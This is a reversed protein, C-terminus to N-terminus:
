EYRIAEVPDLRSAQYAPYITAILCIIIASLSIVTIDTWQMKVALKDIYYIDSPLKVFQYKELLACLFVGGFIGLLTGVVGIVLGEIMFIKQISKGTAGMSKLVAIDKTKEMVVMILTSVINFAAVLVILTLIVFMTFKELKLASFLNRNMRMWDKTWYPYGLKDKIQLAIQDAKFYDDVRVEIGTVEDSMNLFDQAEKISIYALSSDYDYMGSSFIGIVEFRRSRPASGLPTDVGGPSVVKIFDQAKVSLNKALESGLIVGPTDSKKLLDSLKGQRMNRGMSTTEAATDPDIGRLVAGSISSNSRLIIQTYVFPTAAQVHDIKNITENLQRYNTIGGNYKLVVVHSNVGMIKEKLDNEFGSMVSLVVILAMVGVMVGAISIITIISIFTQKRRAKLYRLGIFSEYNM